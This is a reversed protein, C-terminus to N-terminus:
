GSRRRWSRECARARPLDRRGHPPPLRRARHRASPQVHLHLAPRPDARLRHHGLEGAGARVPALRRRAAGGDHRPAGRLAAERDRRRRHLARRRDRGASRRHPQRDHRSLADGRGPHRGGRHRQRHARHCPRAAEAAVGRRRGGAAPLGRQASRDGGGPHPRPPPQPDLHLPPRHGPYLRQHQLAVAGARLAAHRAGARPHAVRGHDRALRQVPRARPQGPRPRAALAARPAQPNAALPRNRDGSGRGCHAGKARGPRRLDPVLPHVRQRRPLLAASLIFVLFLGANRRANRDLDRRRLLFTWVASAILLYALAIVVGSVAHLALM